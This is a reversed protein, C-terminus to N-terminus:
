KQVTGTMWWTSSRKESKRVVGGPLHVAVDNWSASDDVKGNVNFEQIPNLYEGALENIRYDYGFFQRDREADEKLKFVSSGNFMTNLGMDDAITLATDIIWSPADSIRLNGSKGPRKIVLLPMAQAILNPKLIKMTDGDSSLIGRLDKPTVWSGHDSMLIILTDNYIGAKKMQEFLGLVEILGCRAQIIVNERELHQTRGAYQCQSNTVIPEHSLMLHLYKYVPNDRDTTLKNRLSRLFNTDEFFQLGSYKQEHSFSQFLWLQDNYIYKKLFHPSSRFLTLDLLKAADRTVFDANAVHQLRPTSTLNTHLSNSYMYALAQPIVLDVEYGANYSANLITNGSITSKLFEPIPKHNRYIKGSLIAPVSMHTYPFAGLHNRYFTFGDLVAAIRHGEDGDSIIEEFIDSQFGDALIHLVNKKSSFQYIEKLSENSQIAISKKSLEPANDYLTFVFIFFQLAALLMAIGILRRGITRHFLVTAAIAFVWIGSDV